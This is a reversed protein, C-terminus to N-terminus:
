GSSASEALRMFFHGILDWCKSKSWWLRCVSSWVARQNTWDRSLKHGVPKWYKKIVEEHSVDLKDGQESIPGTEPCDSVLRIVSRRKEKLSDKRFSVFLYKEEEIIYFWTHAIHLANNSSEYSFSFRLPVIYVSHPSPTISPYIFQIFHIKPIVQLELQWNM